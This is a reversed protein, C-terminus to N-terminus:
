YETMRIRNPQLESVVTRVRGLATCQLSLCDKDSNVSVTLVITDGLLIRMVTYKPEAGTICGGRHPGEM